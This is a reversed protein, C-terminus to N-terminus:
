AYGCNKGIQGWRKDEYNGYRFIEGHLPSEAIVIILIKGYRSEIQKRIMDLTVIHDPEISKWKLSNFLM